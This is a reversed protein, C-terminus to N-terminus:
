TLSPPRLLDLPHAALPAAPRLGMQRLGHALPFSESLDHGAMAAFSAPTCHADNCNCGCQCSNTASTATKGTQARHQAHEDQIQMGEHMAHPGQSSVVAQAPKARQCHDAKMLSAWATAPVSLTLWLILALRLLKM